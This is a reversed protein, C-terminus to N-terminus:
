FKGLPGFIDSINKNIVTNVQVNQKKLPDKSRLMRWKLSYKEVECRSTASYLPFFMSFVVLTPDNKAAEEWKM